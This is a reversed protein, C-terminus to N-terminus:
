GKGFLPWLLDASRWKRPDGVGLARARRSAEALAVAQQRLRGALAAFAADADTVIM